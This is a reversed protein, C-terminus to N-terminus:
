PRDALALVAAAHRRVASPSLAGAPLEVVFATSRPYTANQWGTISGPFSGFHRFPLAVLRAYRQEVRRDGGSDDVLQAHQHYWVTLAPRLHRVLRNIARSEPESLPGSGSYFTGGPHDLPRWRWPSNRNLDVGRANQRTHATCGDQNFAQVLWLSVGRRPRSGALRRTVAEGATEDGHVCGVVLVARPSAPDGVVRVRIPRGRVSTGIVRSTSRPLPTSVPASTSLASAATGPRAGGVGTTRESSCAVLALLAVVGPGWRRRFRQMKKM